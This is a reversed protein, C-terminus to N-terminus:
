ARPSKRKLLVKGPICPNVQATGQWKGKLYHQGKEKRLVLQYTKVCYEQDVLEKQNIVLGDQLTLFFGSYISGKVETKIYVDQGHEVEAIGSIQDGRVKLELRMRYEPQYGGEEQTLIGEWSGEIGPLSTQGALPVVMSALWFMVISLFIKM